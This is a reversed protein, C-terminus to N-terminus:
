ASPLELSAVVTDGDARIEVRGGDQAALAAAVTLGVGLGPAATVAAEGRFFPELALALDESSPAGKSMVEIVVRDGSTGVRVEIPPRGYRAANELLAGLVRELADGRSPATTATDGSVVLPGAGGAAAWAREIVPGVAQATPPDVPLVTSVGAALLLDDVLRELRATNRVLAPAIEGRVEDPTARELAEALGRITAVPLKLEHGVVNIIRRRLLDVREREHQLDGGPETAM